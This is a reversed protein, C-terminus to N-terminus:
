SNCIRHCKIPHIYWNCNYIMCKICICTRKRNAWYISQRVCAAGITKANPAYTRKPAAVDIMLNDEAYLKWIFSVADRHLKDQHNARGRTLQHACFRIQKRRANRHFCISHSHTHAGARAYEGYIKRNNREIATPVTHTHTHRETRSVEYRSRLNQEKQKWM